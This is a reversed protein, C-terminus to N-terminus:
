PSRATPRLLLSLHHCCQNDWSFEGLPGSVLQRSCASLTVAADLALLREGCQQHEQFFNSPSDRGGLLPILTHQSPAMGASLPHSPTLSERMGMMKEDGMEEGGVSSILM